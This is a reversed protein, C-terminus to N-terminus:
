NSKRYNWPSGGQGAAVQGMLTQEAYSRANKLQSATSRLKAIDKWFFERRWLKNAARVIGTDAKEHIWLCTRRNM